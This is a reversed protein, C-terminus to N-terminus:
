DHYHTHLVPKGDWKQYYQRVSFKWPAGERTVDPTYLYTPQYPDQKFNPVSSRISPIEVLRPKGGKTFSAIKYFTPPSVYGVSTYVIEGLTYTPTESSM